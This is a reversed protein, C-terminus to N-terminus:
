KAMTLIKGFAIQESFGAMADPKKHAFSFRNAAALAAQPVDPCQYAPLATSRLFVSLWHGRVEIAQLTADASQHFSTVGM